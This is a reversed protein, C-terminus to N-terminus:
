SFYRFNPRPRRHIDALTSKGASEFFAWPEPGRCPPANKTTMSAPTDGQKWRGDSSVSDLANWDRPGVGRM